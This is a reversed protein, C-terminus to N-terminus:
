ATDGTKRARSVAGAVIGRTVGLATAAQKYTRGKRVMAIARARIAPTSIRQYGFERRPEVGHRECVRRVTDYTVGTASRIEVRTACGRAMELIRKITTDSLDGVRNGSVRKGLIPRVVQGIRSSTVGFVKGIDAYKMGSQAMEVM